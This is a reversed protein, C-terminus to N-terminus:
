CKLLYQVEKMSHNISIKFDTIHTESKTKKEFNNQSVVQPGICKWTLILILQYSVKLHGVPIKNSIAEIRYIFKLFISM